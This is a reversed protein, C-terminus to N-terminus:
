ILQSCIVFAWTMFPVFPLRQRSRDLLLIVLAGFAALTLSSLVIAPSALCSLLLLVDVDGLGFKTTLWALLYLAIILGVLLVTPLNFSPPRQWCGLLAAPVLTLPYVSWDLYDTLSNFLLTSYGLSLVFMNFPPQMTMTVFLFGTLLEIGTSRWGIPTHCDWCRGCQILVGIIPMLQWVRLVHQCSPCHSRTTNWISQKAHLREAMCTIFSGIITGSFFYFSLQLM